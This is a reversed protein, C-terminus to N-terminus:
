RVGKIGYVAIPLLFMNNTGGTEDNIGPDIALEGTEFWLIMGRHFSDTSGKGVMRGSSTTGTSKTRYTRMRSVDEYGGYTVQYHVEIFDYETSNADLVKIRQGDFSTSTPRPNEWLKVM